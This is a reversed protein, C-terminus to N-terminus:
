KEKNSDTSISVHFAPQEALILTLDSLFSIVKAFTKKGLNQSKTAKKMAKKMKIM